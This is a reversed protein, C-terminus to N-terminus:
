NFGFMGSISSRKNHTPTSNTTNGINAGDQSDDRSMSMMSSGRRGINSMLNGTAKFISGVGGDGGLDEECLAPVACKCTSFKPGEVTGNCRLCRLKHANPDPAEEEITSPDAINAVPNINMDSPTRSHGHGGTMSTSSQSYGNSSSNEHHISTDLNFDDGAVPADTPDLSPRFMDDDASLLPQSNKIVTTNNNFMNGLYSTSPQKNQPTHQSSVHSYGPIDDGEELNNHTTIECGLGTDDEDDSDIQSQSHSQSLAKGHISADSARVTLPSASSGSRSERSSVGGSIASIALQAQQAAITAKLGAVTDTLEEIKKRSNKVEKVLVKKQDSLQSCKNEASVKAAVAMQMNLSTQDM